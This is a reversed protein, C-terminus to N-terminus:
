HSLLRRIEGAARWYPRIARGKVVPRMEAIAEVQFRAGEHRLRKPFACHQPLQDGQATSPPGSLVRVRVKKGRRSPKYCEVLFPLPQRSLALSLQADEEELAAQPCDRVTNLDM